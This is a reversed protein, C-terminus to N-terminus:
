WLIRSVEQIKVLFISINSICFM